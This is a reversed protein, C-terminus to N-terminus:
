NKKLSKNPFGFRCEEETDFVAVDRWDEFKSGHGDM